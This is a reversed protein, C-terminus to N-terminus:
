EFLRSARSAARQDRVKRLRHVVVPDHELAAPDDLIANLLQFYRARSIGFERLIHDSKRGSHKTWMNEFALIRQAQDGLSM